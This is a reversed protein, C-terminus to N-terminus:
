SRLRDLKGDAYRMEECEAQIAALLPSAPRQATPSYTIYLSDRARTMAVYLRAAERPMEEHTTGHPPLVGDVLGLIFVTQFEHGKASEITSVKVNESTFSVDERLSRLSVVTM